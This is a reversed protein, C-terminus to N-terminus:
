YVYVTDGVKLNNWYFVADDHKLHICGHSWLNIDGEHFAVGTNTFYVSYPMPANNFIYSVEDKVKRQVKFTGKPTEWGPAGSSMAIERMDKVVGNEQLWTRQGTLDICARAHKPCSGYNFSAKRAREAEEEVRRKAEEARMKAEEARKQAEADKQAILGPFIGNFINDIANKIVQGPVGPMLADITHFLSTRSEWAQDQAGTFVSSLATSSQAQAEPMAVTLSCAAVISGAIAAVRRKTSHNRTPRKNMNM